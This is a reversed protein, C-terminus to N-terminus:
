NIGPRQHFGKAVLRAKYKSISGDLRRKTQFVWKCGVVNQFPSHPVLEWTVNRLLERLENSMAQWWEIIKFAESACTPEVFDLLHHNINVQYLHKPKFINNKSRTTMPHTSPPPISNTPTLHISPATPQSLFDTSPITAVFSQSLPSLTSANHLPCSTHPSNSSGVSLSPLSVIIPQSPTHLSTEMTTEVLPQPM